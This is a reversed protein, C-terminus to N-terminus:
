SSGPIKISYESTPDHPGNSQNFLFRAVTLNLENGLELCEVEEPTLEYGPQLYLTLTMPVFEFNGGAELLRDLLAGLKPTPDWHEESGAYSGLLQDLMEPAISGPECSYTLRRNKSRGLVEIFVLNGNPRPTASITDGQRFPVFFWPIGVDFVEFENGTKHTLYAEIEFPEADADDSCVLELVYSQYGM